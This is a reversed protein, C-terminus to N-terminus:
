SAHNFNPSIFLESFRQLRPFEVMAISAAQPALGDRDGQSADRRGTESNPAAERCLKPPSCPNEARLWFRRDPPWFLVLVARM